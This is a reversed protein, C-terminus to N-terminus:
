WEPSQPVTGGVMGAEVKAGTTRVWDKYSRLHAANVPDTRVKRWEIWIFCFIFPVFQATKQKAM